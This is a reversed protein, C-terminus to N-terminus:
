DMLARVDDATLSGSFAGDQDLLADFLAQKREKLAMVKDEITDQSVLRSVMVPRTQGIRHTRDIAQSETAPNWWPDLLFVYDAETLNLGFGGAKLSILFVPAQGQKFGNIVSARKTTAGDLYAYETGAADLRQRVKALYTTFQSFVLARHDAGIIQDLQNMLVDLKSSPVSKLSPDVLSVDLAARRLMTLSKLIAFRNAEYDELLGLMRSRERQLYTDYLERHRGALEVHTVQEQREPLDSAVKEKTRRLLLPKARRRLQSMAETAPEGQSAIPGAYLDKFRKRSGFLGPAVIAFIAWFEDLSNEMPTGTIALKFDTKLARSQQNVKTAFNKAFQAEDLLLGSWELAAFQENDLRFIAYSTVILDAGAALEALPVGARARTEAAPRVVLDPVFHASEDLWGPVVSSPAVVLFPPADPPQEARARAIMALTQVTKGLGMDDALIGGLHHRWIFTLWDYGSKQYPRLHATLASPLPEENPSADALGRLAAMTARWQEAGEVSTAVDELDQWLSAQYRGIRPNSPHDSLKAAEGILRSLKRFVPQDLAVLSGDPAMAHTEGAALAAFVDAFVLECDGVEITVGLDFWDGSDASQAKIKVQPEEQRPKVHSLDGVIALGEVTRLEPLADMVFRALAADSLEENGVTSPDAFAGSATRVSDVRALIAEEGALDWRTGAREPSNTPFEPTGDAGGYRWFWALHAKTPTPSTIRLVLTARQLEPMQSSGDTSVLPLARILVPYMQDWFDDIQASPISVPLATRLAASVFRGRGDGPGLAIRRGTPTEIAVAYAASGIEVITADAFVQTDHGDLRVVTALQLGETDQRLDVAPEVLRHLEVSDTPYEGVLKVGLGAAAGLHPWLADSDTETLRLWASSGYFNDTLRNLDEFWRQQARSVGEIRWSNNMGWRLGPHAVWQGRKGHKVARVELSPRGWSQTSREGFRLQLAVPALKRPTADNEIADVVKSLRQEWTRVPAPKHGGKVAAANAALVLAVIHKCDFGVPCSCLGSDAEVVVGDGDAELWIRCEYPTPRTGRIRGFLRMDIPDFSISHDLVLGRRFYEQGRAFTLNGVQRRLDVADVLQFGAIPM